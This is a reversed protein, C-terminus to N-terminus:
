KLTKFRKLSGNDEVYNKRITNSTSSNITGGFRDIVGSFNGNVDIAWTAVHFVTGGNRNRQWTDGQVIPKFEDPNEKMADNFFWAVAANTSNFLDNRTIFWQYYKSVFGNVTTKWQWYTDNYKVDSIYAVAQNTSSKTTISTKKLAGHNGNQDYGVTCVVYETLPNLNGWSTVYGDSPTDRNSADSSMDAIIEDDTKRDLASPYYTTVYYYKVKSGFNYDFAYGDALVVVTNPSVQLNADLGARQTVTKSASKTNTKVTLTATRESTSSNASNTWVKVTSTGKGSLASIDLWDPKGEIRWEVNNCTITLEQAVQINGATADFPADLGSLTLIDPAAQSVSVYKTDGESKITITAKRESNNPNETNASVTVTGAGTGTAPTFQIWSENCSIEWNSTCAVSFTGTAGANSSLSLESPSVSVTSTPTPSPTPTPESKADDDGGCSTTSLSLTLAMMFAVVNWLFISKKM